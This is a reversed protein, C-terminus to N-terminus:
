KEDLMRMIDEEEVYESRDAERMLVAMGLDEMEEETIIKSDIGMKKLLERAQRLEAKNGSKAIIAEM